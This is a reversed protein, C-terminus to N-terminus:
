PSLPWETKRASWDSGLMGQLKILSRDRAQSICPRPLGQFLPHHAPPQPAPGPECKGRLLFPNPVQAPLCLRGPLHTGWVPLWHIVAAPSLRAQALSWPRSSCRSGLRDQANLEKGETM